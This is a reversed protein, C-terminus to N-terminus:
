QHLWRFVATSMYLCVVSMAVCQLAHLSSAAPGMFKNVVGEPKLQYMLMVATSRHTGTDVVARM